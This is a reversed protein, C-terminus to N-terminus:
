NFKLNDSLCDKLGDLQDCKWWEGGAGDFIHRVIFYDDQLKYVMWAGYKGYDLSFVIRGREYGEGNNYFRGKKNPSELSNLFLVENKSFENDKMLSNDMMLKEAESNYLSYYSSKVSEFLKIYKM